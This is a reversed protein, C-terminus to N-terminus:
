LKSRSSRSPEAAGERNGGLMRLKRSLKLYRVWPQQCLEAVARASLTATFMRRGSTVGNVGLGQLFDSEATGPAQATHIFVSLAPEEPNQVDDLAAALGADLKRYDM